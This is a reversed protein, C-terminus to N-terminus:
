MYNNKNHITHYYYEFYIKFCIYMPLYLYNTGFIFLYIMYEKSFDFFLILWRSNKTVYFMIVGILRYVVFFLLMNDLKFFVFLLLYSIIDCIKDNSQYTFSKTCDNHISINNILTNQKKFKIFSINDIEDLITLLIPLIILLYKSIFKNTINLWLVYFTIITATYRILMGIKILNYCNPM